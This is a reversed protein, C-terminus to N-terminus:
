NILYILYSIYILVLTIGEYRELKRGKGLFIFAFLLLSVFINLFMDIITGEKLPLPYITSSLGLIFFVNFINSGVINGIAIDVNNKLAASVSTALEPLSTGVSVITLGIIRESIGISKAFNVAFMVVVKGGVMLLIFGFLTLIISKTLSYESVVIKEEFTGLRILSFIYFLFILFFSLLVIGDIRSLESVKNKDILKDNVMVLILISSLLVMPIEKWTTNTKVELNKIISTIGLIGAINFINSGIINGMTIDPTKSISSFINVILEPASTGFAVVTLGIVINPINFKKALSSSGDVLFNAGYVLPIFGLLLFILNTM